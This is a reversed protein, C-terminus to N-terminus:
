NDWVEALIKNTQEVEAIRNRAIEGSRSVVMGILAEVFFMTTVYSSFFHPSDTPLVFGASAHRLAPCAHTNSVVVVYVGREQALQAAKISREAFPPKTVVILVDRDDLETLGAGLSAGMRSAMNWNTACLNAMYSLYEVVGTSGLAGLLLVKRAVSIRDVAQDLLVRDVTDGFATLNSQCATLHADVFGTQSTGHDQQLQKARDAFGNVHQEIRARMEERLEEIDAYDLARSLRSYAAPSVGSDRSVTRLTRTALDVPNAVLFDAAQRLAESLNDYRDALRAEFSPKM